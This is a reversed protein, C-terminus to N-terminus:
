SGRLIDSNDVILNTSNVCVCVCVFVLDSFHKKLSLMIYMEDEWYKHFIIKWHKKTCCDVYKDFGRLPNPTGKM